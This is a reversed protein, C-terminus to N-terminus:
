NVIFRFEVSGLFVAGATECDPDVDFRRVIGEDRRLHALRTYLVLSGCAGGIENVADV